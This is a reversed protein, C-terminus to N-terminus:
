KAEFPNGATNDILTPNQLHNSEGIGKAEAIDDVDELSKTEAPNKRPGISATNEALDTSDAEVATKCPCINEQNAINGALDTCDIEEPGKSKQTHWLVEIGWGHGGYM